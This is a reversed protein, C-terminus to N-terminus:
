RNTLNKIHNIFKKDGGDQTSLQIIIYEYKSQNNGIIKYTNDFFFSGKKIIEINKINKIKMEWIYFIDEENKGYKILKDQTFLQAGELISFLGESYIFLIEDNKNIIKKDILKNRNVNSLESGTIVKTDPSIGKLQLVYLIVSWLTYLVFFPIIFFKIFKPLKGINKQKKIKLHDEDFDNTKLDGAKAFWYILLLIGIITFILFLWLGSENIDHLRRVSVALIPLLVIINFVLQVTGSTDIIETCISILITFLIFQWFESRSSRGAFDVYKIFCNKIAEVFNM